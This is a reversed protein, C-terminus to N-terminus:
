GLLLVGLCHLNRRLKKDRKGLISCTLFDNGITFKDVTFQCCLGVSLQLIWQDDHCPVDGGPKGLEALGPVAFKMKSKENM